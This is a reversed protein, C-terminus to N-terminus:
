SVTEAMLRNYVDKVSRYLCLVFYRDLGGIFATSDCSRNLVAEMTSALSEAQVRNLNLKKNEGGEGWIPRLQSNLDVEEYRTLSSPVEGFVPSNVDNMWRDLAYAQKASIVLGISEM